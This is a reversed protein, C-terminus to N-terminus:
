MWAVNARFGPLREPHNNYYKEQDEELLLQEDTANFFRKCTQEIINFHNVSWTYARAAIQGENIGQINHPLWFGYPGAPGGKWTPPPVREKPNVEFHKNKCNRKYTEFEELDLPGLFVSARIVEFIANVDNSGRIIMTALWQIPASYCFGWLKCKGEPPVDSRRELVPLM